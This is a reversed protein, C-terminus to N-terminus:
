GTFGESFFMEELKKSHAKLFSGLFVLKDTIKGTNIASIFFESSCSALDRNIRNYNIGSDDGGILLHNKSIPLVIIPNNDREWFLYPSGRGNPSLAVAVCDPLIFQTDNKYVIKWKMM